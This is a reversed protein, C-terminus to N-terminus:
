TCCHGPPHRCTFGAGGPYSPTPCTWSTPPTEGLPPKGRHRCWMASQDSRSPVAQLPCAMRDTEPRHYPRGATQEPAARCSGQASSYASYRALRRWRCGRLHPRRPRWQRPRLCHRHPRPRLPQCRSVRPCLPQRLTQTRWLPSAATATRHRRHGICTHWPCGPAQYSPQKMSSHVVAV